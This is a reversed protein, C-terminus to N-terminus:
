QPNKMRKRLDFGLDIIGLIRIIYMLFPIIFSVITITVPIALSKNKIYFYFFLFSIGQITMVIELVLFLNLIISYLLADESETIGFMILISVILYYWLLSKPFTWQRLPPFPQYDIKLRKFIQGAFFQTTITFLVSILVIVSPVVYSIMDISEYMLEFQDTPRGLAKFMEEGTKISEHMMNKTDEVINVNFLLNSLVFLLVLNVMLTLSGGVLVAYASKRLSYIYGMALGATGYTFALPVTAISGIIYTIFLAVVLLLLGNKLGHHVVYIIFPIPLCFLFFMGIIPMYLVIFLLISFIAALVAGEIIPRVSNM